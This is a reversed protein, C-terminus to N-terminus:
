VNHINVLFHVTTKTNPYSTIFLEGGVLSARERMGLLGMSFPNNIKDNVIGKGNDTVKLSLIDNIQEMELHVRSAHAHRAVNTLAEQCIRFFCISLSENIMQEENVKFTSTCTIGNKKEFDKALWGISPFLGLTDLIGPRLETAFERLSQISQDVDGLVIALVEEANAPNSVFQKKLSSLSMKLGTLQQGFEDHIERAIRAREQEMITNQQRAFRRIESESKMVKEYAKKRETIDAELNFYQTVKGKSDFLPQHKIELWVPKGSKTYKLIECEFPQARKSKEKMFSVVSKNTEPGHLISSSKGVAEDFSFETIRSFAENVWEIKGDLNTILVANDTKRAILSLKVLERESQRADTIDNLVNIAGTMQGSSDFVPSPNPMVNRLEGNPRQVLIEEGKVPVGNKLTRAMPCQDLPMPTGDPYFINFSGCYLTDNIVPEMGWLHVAAKNFIQIKGEADTTYVAAPLNQILDAYQKKSEEARKRAQVEQTVDVGFYFIGEIEGSTNRYAQFMFSLYFQQLIGTGEVDLQLSTELSTFTEGSNYVQDMWQPVLQDEAEPFIEMVSRGIIKKDGVYKYYQENASEFVHDKGKLICMSVPAEAFMKSFRRQENEVLRELEKKDTIDRAVLYILREDAIPTATWSIWVVDKKKTIYRVDFAQCELGLEINLYEQRVMDLDDPHIFDYFPRALIEKSSYGLVRSFAPNVKKFYDDYGAICLIDPSLNFYQKLEYEAKKRQIHSALHNLLNSTFIETNQIVVPVRTYLALVAIVHDKFIVPVALGSQLNNKRAFNNRSYEPNVQLDHMLLMKKKKRAAGILGNMTNFVNLEDPLLHDNMSFSSSFNLDRHDISSIWAEACDVGAFNCLAKLIKQLCDTLDEEDDFIEGISAIMEKEKNQLHAETEDRAIGYVGIILGDRIVPMGTVNLQLVRGTATIAPLRLSVARGSLCESLSCQIRELDQPLCLSSFHMTLAEEVTYKMLEVAAKNVSTFYGEANLSFVADPNKEFLSRYEQENRQLSNEIRIHRTIDQITHLICSVNKKKDLVPTNVAEWILLASGTQDILMNNYGHLDVKHVEKKSMVYRLSAFLYGKSKETLCSECGAFVDSLRKGLVLDRKFGFALLYAQNVEAIRFDTTDTTLILSPIPSADFVPGIALQVPSNELLRTAM